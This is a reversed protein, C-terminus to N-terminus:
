APSPRSGSRDSRASGRRLMWELARWIRVRSNGIIAPRTHLSIRCAITNPAGGHYRIVHLCVRGRAPATAGPAFVAGSPAAPDRLDSSANLGEPAASASASSVRALCPSPPRNRSQTSVQAQGGNLAILQGGHGGAEVAAAILNGVDASSFSGGSVTSSNGGANYEVTWIAAQIEASLANSPASGMLGNGYSALAGIESIQQASLPSPNNSNDTGLSGESYTYGSGGIAIDHFIDVCWVPLVFQNSSGINNVTLVIQGSMQGNDSYSSGDIVGNLNLNEYDPLQVNDVNISGASAPAAIAGLGILGAAVVLASKFSVM